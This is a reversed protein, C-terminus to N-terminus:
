DLVSFIENIDANFPITLRDGQRYTISDADQTHVQITRKSYNVEIVHPVGMKLYLDVKQLRRGKCESPSIVEITLLPIGEFWRGSKIAQKADEERIVMLDPGPVSDRGSAPNHFQWGTEQVVRFTEPSLENLQQKLINALQEIVVGHSLFPNPSLVREGEILEDRFNLLNPLKAYEEATFLKPTTVSAM